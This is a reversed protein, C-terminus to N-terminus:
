EYQTRHRAITKQKPPRRPFSRTRWGLEYRFEGIVDIVPDRNPAYGNKHPRGPFPCM